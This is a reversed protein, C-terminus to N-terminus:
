ADDSETHLDQDAGRLRLTRGWGFDNWGLWFVIM